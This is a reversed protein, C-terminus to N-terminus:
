SASEPLRDLAEATVRRGIEIMEDARHFDLTRVPKRPIRILIDPPHAALQYRALAEQMIDLTRTLLGLRGIRALDEGDADAEALADWGIRDAVSRVFEGELLGAARRRIVGKSKTIRATTAEGDEPGLVVGVTVDSSVAVTPAVPLPDLIGGDALVRGKHVHPSIVGPIAFSARMADLLDGQQFWVSRGATIDTAVATFPIALEEILVEGLIDRVRALVREAGIVGGHALSVDLLRMVDLQTLGSAWEVYEDLRGACYLGGVLAGMSSGAITVIEYGRAELEGIVGIHAYGRAGGSGLALAVRTAAGM